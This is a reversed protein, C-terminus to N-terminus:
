ETVAVFLLPQEAVEDGTATVTFGSGAGAIVAEPGSVKQEPPM